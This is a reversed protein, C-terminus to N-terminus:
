TECVAHGPSWSLRVPWCMGMMAIGDNWSKAIVAVPAPARMSPQLSPTTATFCHAHSNSSTSNGLVLMLTLTTLLMTGLTIALIGAWLDWEPTDPPHRNSREM